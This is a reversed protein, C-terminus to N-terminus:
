QIKDAYQSVLRSSSNKAAAVAARASEREASGSPAPANKIAKLATLQPYVLLISLASGQHEDNSTLAGDLPSTCDQMSLCPAESLVEKLFAYDDATKLNRGLLFVITGRENRREMPLSRYKTRFAAKANEDLVRLDTDLRPDNDNKSVFIEDLIRLQLASTDSLAPGNGGPPPPSATQASKAPLSGAAVAAVQASATTPYPTRARALWLGAIVVLGILGLAFGIM